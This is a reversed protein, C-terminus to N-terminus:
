WNRRRRRKSLPKNLIESFIIGQVMSDPTVDFNFNSLDYQDNRMALNNEASHKMIVENSAARKQEASSVSPEQAKPKQAKKTKKAAANQTAKPKVAEAQVAKQAEMAENVRQVIFNLGNISNSKGNADKLLNIIDDLGPM